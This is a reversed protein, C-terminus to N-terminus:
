SGVNSLMNEITSISVSTVYKVEVYKLLSRISIYGELTKIYFHSCLCQIVYSDIRAKFKRIEVNPHCSM